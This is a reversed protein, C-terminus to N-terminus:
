GPTVKLILLSDEGTSKLWFPHSVSSQQPVFGFDFTKEPIELRPQALAFSSLGFVLLGAILALKSHKM